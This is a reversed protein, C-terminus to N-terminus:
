SSVAPELSSSRAASRSAGAAGPGRVRAPATFLPYLAFMALAFILLELRATMTAIISLHFAVGLVAGARRWRPRLFAVALFGELLVSAVAVAAMVYVTRLPAPVALLGDTRLSAAMVGGSLWVVNVKALAAFGYVIPLMAQLLLVPGAPVRERTGRRHADLSWCAASDAVTLLLTLVALLYLHNSYLQEDLLLPVALCAALVAGSVRTGWGLLLGLAALLWVALLGTVVPAAPYPLWAVVPMRLWGPETLRLLPGAIVVAKLLAAAAVLMRAVALPRAAATGTIASRLRASLRM